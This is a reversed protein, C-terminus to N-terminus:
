PQRRVCSVRHAPNRLLRDVREEDLPDCPLLPFDLALFTVFSLRFAFSIFFPLYPHFSLDRDWDRSPRLERFREEDVRRSRERPRLREPEGPGRERRRSVRSSFTQM